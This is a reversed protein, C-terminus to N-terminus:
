HHSHNKGAMRVSCGFVEKIFRLQDREPARRWEDELYQDWDDAVYEDWRSKLIKFKEYHGAGRQLASPKDVDGSDEAPVTDPSEVPREEPQDPDEEAPELSPAENEPM